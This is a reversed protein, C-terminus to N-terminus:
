TVVYTVITRYLYWKKEEERERGGTWEFHEITKEDLSTLMQDKCISDEIIVQLRTFFTEQQGTLKM